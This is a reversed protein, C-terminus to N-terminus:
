VVIEDGRRPMQGDIYLLGEPKIAAKLRARAKKELEPHRGDLAGVRMAFVLDFREDAEQLEFDEIAIIRFQMLGTKIEAESREIAIRIAKPSRDIAVVRGNGIRKFVERAAVGPGCGIELVRLGPRLPLADVFNAIRPSIKTPM